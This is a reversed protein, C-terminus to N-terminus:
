NWYSIYKQYDNCLQELGERSLAKATKISSPAEKSIGTGPTYIIEGKKKELSFEITTDPIDLRIRYTVIDVMRVNFLPYRTLVSLIVDQSLYKQLKRIENQLSQIKDQIKKNEDLYNDLQEKENEIDEVIEASKSKYLNIQEELAIADREPGDIRIKKLKKLNYEMQRCKESWDISDTM